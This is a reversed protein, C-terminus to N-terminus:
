EESESYIAEIESTLGSLENNLNEQMLLTALLESNIDKATYGLDHALALSDMLSTDNDMLYQMAKSYYICESQYIEERLAEILDEANDFDAYQYDEFSTGNFLEKLNVEIQTQNETKM